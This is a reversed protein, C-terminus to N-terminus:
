AQGLVLVANLGGFAFSNSMAVRIQSQRAVNPVFDLDCDPDQEEFNGTPPITRTHLALATAAIELAGAAGLSHGLVAKISSVALRDAHAAFVNRLAATETRDNLSTGTGHANVYAVDDPNLKADALAAQMARSCGGIDAAIIDLADASQGFGLVEAYIRANRAMARDRRELVLMAAGEGLVIGSRTRSFPRCTDTTLVRLAEWSKISGATLIAETGGTLAIPAQGMRVMHFAQGIAQTGSACATSVTWTPGRLGLRMSVQSAAASVMWRPITLPHVRPSNQGYFKLYADDVSNQGGAGNGIAVAATLAQEESIEINSDRVAAQAAVVAFQAFRDLQGAHKDAFYLGPDFDLVQAAIRTSLRETPVTVIPRIASRGDVLASWFDDLTLGAPSVVGIGTIVVRHM